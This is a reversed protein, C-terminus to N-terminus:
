ENNKTNAASWLYRIITMANFANKEPRWEVGLQDGIARAEPAELGTYLAAHTFLRAYDRSNRWGTRARFHCVNM